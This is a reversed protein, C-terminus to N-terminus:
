RGCGQFRRAVPAHWQHKSQLTGSPGAGVPRRRRPDLEDGAVADGMTPCMGPKGATLFRNFVDSVQNAYGAEVLYRAFHTRSILRESTVYKMAGEYAGGIGAEALANAM